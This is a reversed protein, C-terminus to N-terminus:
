YQPFDQRRLVSAHVRDCFLGSDTCDRNLAPDSLEFITREAEISLSALRRGRLTSCGFFQLKGNVNTEVMQEERSIVGACNYICTVDQPFETLRNIDGKIKTLKKDKPLLLDDKRTLAYIPIGDELLKKVLHRGIFGTAGTVLIMYFTDSEFLSAFPVEMETHM